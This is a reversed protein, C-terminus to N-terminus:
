RPPHHTTNPACANHKARMDCQTRADPPASVLVFFVPSLFHDGLRYEDAMPNTTALAETILSRPARMRLLSKTAILPDTTGRRHKCGGERLGVPQTRVHGGKGQMHTCVRTLRARARPEAAAQARGQAGGQPGGDQRGRSRGTKASQRMHAKTRHAKTAEDRM